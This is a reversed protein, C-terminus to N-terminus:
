LNRVFGKKGLEILFKGFSRLDRVSTLKRLGLAILRSPRRWEEKMIRLMEEIPFDPNEYPPVFVDGGFLKAKPFIQYTNWSFDRPLSGIEKALLELETGPYIETFGGVTSVKLGYGSLEDMFKLTKRLDEITENPHSFMFFVKVYYGLEASIKVAKRIQDLKIGKKIRDLVTQSGSEAGYAIAVCGSKKMLVLLERDATDVRARVFWRIDIKRDLLEECVNKVHKKALTFTDDCMEFAEYGYQNQLFEIEDVVKKPDRRRFVRGWFTSNVCFVCSYPCGRSSM